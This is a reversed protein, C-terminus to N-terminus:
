DYVAEVQDRVVAHDIGNLYLFDTTCCHIRRAYYQHCLLLRCYIYAAFQLLIINMNTIRRCCTAVIIAEEVM